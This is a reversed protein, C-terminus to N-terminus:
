ESTKVPNNEDNSVEHQYSLTMFQKWRFVIAAWTAAVAPLACLLIEIEIEGGTLFLFALVELIILLATILLWAILKMLMTERGCVIIQLLWWSLFLCPLSFLASLSVFIVLMAFSEASFIDSIHEGTIIMAALIMLPHLLNALFWTSFAHLFM